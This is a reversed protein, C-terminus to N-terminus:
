FNTALIVQQFIPFSIEDNIGKDENNLIADKRAELWFMTADTPIPIEFGNVSNDPQPFAPGVNNGFIYGVNLTTEAATVYEFQANIFYIATAGAKNSIFLTRSNPIPQPRTSAREPFDGLEYLAPPQSGSGSGTPVYFLTNDVFELVIPKPNYVPKFVTNTFLNTTTVPNWDIFTSGAVSPAQPILNLAFQQVSQGTTVNPITALVNGKYDEFVASVTTPLAKALPDTVTLDIPASLYTGGVGSMGIQLELIAQTFDPLNNRNGEIRVIYTSSGDFTNPNVYYLQQFGSLNIFRFAWLTTIQSFKIEFEYVMSGAAWAVTANFGTYNDQIPCPPVSEYPFTSIRNTVSILNPVGSFQIDLAKPLPLQEYVAQITQAQAVTPVTGQFNTWDLRFINTPLNNIDFYVVEIYVVRDSKWLSTDWSQSFAIYTELLNVPQSLSVKANGPNYSSPYVDDNYVIVASTDSAQKTCLNNYYVIRIYSVYDSNQITFYPNTPIFEFQCINNQSICQSNLKPYINTNIEIPDSIVWDSPGFSSVVRARFYWTGNTLNSQTKTYPGPGQENGSFVSDSFGINRAFQYDTSLAEGSVDEWSATISNGAKVVSLLTPSAPPLPPDPVIFPGFVAPDSTRLNLGTAVAYLFNNSTGPSVNITIISNGDLEYPNDPAPIPNALVDSNNLRYFLNASSEEKNTIKFTLQSFTLEVLELIPTEALPDLPIQSTLIPDSELPESLLTNKLAFVLIQYFTEPDFVPRLLITREIAGEATGYDESFVENFNIDQVVIRYGTADPSNSNFQVEFNFKQAERDWIEEVQLDTPSLPPINASSINVFIINSVSPEKGVAQALVTFLYNGDDLNSFVRITTDTTEGALPVSTIPTSQNTSLNTLFYSLTASLRDNNRLRFELDRNVQRLTVVTPLATVIDEVEAAQGPGIPSLERILVTREESFAGIRMNSFRRGFVATEIDSVGGVVGFNPAQAAIRFTYPVGTRLGIFKTRTTNKPLVRTFVQSLDTWSAEAEKYQVIYNEYTSPDTINIWTLFVEGLFEFANTLTVNPPNEQYSIGVITGDNKRYTINVAQLRNQEDAINYTRNRLLKIRDASQFETVPSTVTIIRSYLLNTSLNYENQITFDLKQELYKKYHFPYGQNLYSTEFLTRPIEDLDTPIGYDFYFQPLVRSRFVNLQMPHAIAYLDGDRRQYRYLGNFQIESKRPTGDENLGNYEFYTDKVWARKDIYYRLSMGTPENPFHIWYQDDFQIAVADRDLPVINQINQDLIKINYQNDNAFLSNLSVIGEKSLFYLQNRVPRVSDPAITGYLSNISFQQYPNAAEILADTGKLGWTFTESQVVLINMFPTIRQIKEDADTEFDLTFFAPFYEKHTPHGVFVREPMDASGYAMLKGYHNIVRNCKWLAYAQRKLDNYDLDAINFQIDTIIIDPRHLIESTFIYDVEGTGGDQDFIGNFTRAPAAFGSYRFNLEIKLDYLGVPMNTLGIIFDDSSSIPQSVDAYNLAVTEPVKIQGNQNLVNNEDVKIKFRYDSDSEGEELPTLNNRVPYNLDGDPILVWESESAGIGSPRYYVKPFMELYGGTGFLVSNSTTVRSHNINVVNDAQWNLFSTFTSNFIGSNPINYKLNIEFINGPTKINAIYPRYGYDTIEPTQINSRLTAGSAKLVRGAAYIEDQNSVLLNHSFVKLATFDPIFESFPEFLGNGLYKLPYIGTFIYLTDEIRTAEIRRIVEGDRDRLFPSTGAFDFVVYQDPNIDEELTYGREPSYTYYQDPEEETVYLFGPEGILPFALQDPFELIRSVTRLGLETFAEGSLYTLDPNKYLTTIERWASGTQSLWLRGNIFLIRDFIDVNDVVARYEFYGQIKNAYPDSVNTTFATAPLNLDQGLIGYRKELFGFESISVNEAKRLFVAGLSDDTDVTKLGGMFQKHLDLLKTTRDVNYNM